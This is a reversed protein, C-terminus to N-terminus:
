VMSDAETKSTQPSIDEFVDDSTYTDVRIRTLDADENESECENVETLPPATNVATWPTVKLDNEQKGYLGNPEDVISDINRFDVIYRGKPLDRSLVPSFRKGYSIDTNLYSTQAQMTMGTAELTGTFTVVLEFYVKKSKSYQDPRVRYLPSNKDIIHYYEVPATFFLTDGNQFEVERQESMVQYGVSKEESVASRFSILRARISTSVLLSKRLNAVRVILCRKGDRRTIVANKSFLTTKTRAEPRAFRQYVIGIIWTDFIASVICQITLMIIAHPCKTNMGRYGYGITTESEMSFLFATTFDYVKFVCVENEDIGVSTGNQSVTGWIHERDNNLFAFLWYFAGFFLWHGVYVLLTMILIYSLRMDILTTFIDSVYRGYLKFNISETISVNSTGGKKDILRGGYEIRPILYKSRDVNELRDTGGRISSIQVSNNRTLIRTSVHSTRPQIEPLNVRGNITSQYQIEDEKFRTKRYKRSEIETKQVTGAIYRKKNSNNNNNNSESSSFSDPTSTENMKSSKSHCPQDSPVLNNKNSEYIDSVPRSPRPLNLVLNGNSEVPHVNSPLLQFCDDPSYESEDEYRDLSRKNSSACHQLNKKKARSRGSSMSLTTLNETSTSSMSMDTVSSKQILSSHDMIGSIDDESDIYPVKGYISCASGAKHVPLFTNNCSM